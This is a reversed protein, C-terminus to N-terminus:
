RSGGTGFVSTPTLTFCRCVGAAVATAIDRTSTVTVHVNAGNLVGVLVVVKSIAGAVECKMHGVVVVVVIVVM